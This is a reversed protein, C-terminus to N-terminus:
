LPIARRRRALAWTALLTGAGIALDALNWIPGVGLYLVDSAGGLILRDLANSLAGGVQLGVALVAVWGTGRLWRAYFPILLIGGVALFVWIWWGQRFGLASGTNATRVLSLPGLVEFRECQAWSTATCPSLSVRAMSKVLEDLALVLLAIAAVWRFSV